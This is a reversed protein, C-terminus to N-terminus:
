YDTGFLPLVRTWLKLNSHCCNISGLSILASIVERIYFWQPPQHSKITKWWSHTNFYKALSHSVIILSQLLPMLLSLKLTNYKISCSLLIVRYSYNYFKEGEWIIQGFGFQIWHALFHTFINWLAEGRDLHYSPSLFLGDLYGCPLNISNTFGLSSGVRWCISSQHFLPLEIWVIVTLAPNPTSPLSKWIELFFGQKGECSNLKPLLLQRKPKLVKFACLKWCFLLISM